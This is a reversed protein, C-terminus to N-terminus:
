AKNHRNVFYKELKCNERRKVTSPKLNRGLAM